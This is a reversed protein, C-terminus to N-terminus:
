GRRGHTEVLWNIRAFEKSLVPDWLRLVRFPGIFYCPVSKVWHLPVVTEGDGGDNMKALDAAAAEIASDEAELDMWRMLVVEGEPNGPV